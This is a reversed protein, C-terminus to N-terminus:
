RQADSIREYKEIHGGNSYYIARCRGPWACMAEQVIEIPIRWLERRIANQLQKLDTAVVKKM